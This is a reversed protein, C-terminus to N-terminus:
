TNSVGQLLNSHFPKAREGSLKILFIPQSSERPEYISLRAFMFKPWHGFSLVQVIKVISFSLMEHELVATKCLLKCLPDFGVLCQWTNFESFAVKRVWGRAQCMINWWKLNGLFHPYRTGMKWFHALWFHWRFLFVDVIYLLLAWKESGTGGKQAPFPYPIIITSFLNNMERVKRFKAGSTAVWYGMGYAVKEHRYIGM